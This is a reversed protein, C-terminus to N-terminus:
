FSKKKIKGSSVPEDGAALKEDGAALGKTILRLLPICQQWNTRKDNQQTVNTMKTTLTM